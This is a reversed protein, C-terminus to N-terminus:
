KLDNTSVKIPIVVFQKKYQGNETATNWKTSSLVRVAELYFPNEIDIEEGSFEFPKGDESIAFKVFFIFFSKGNFAEPIDKKNIGSFNFENYIYHYLQDLSGEYSSDNPTFTQNITLTDNAVETEQANVWMIFFFLIVSFVTNM